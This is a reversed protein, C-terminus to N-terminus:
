FYIRKSFKGKSTLVLTGKSKSYSFTFAREQYAEGDCANVGYMGIIKVTNKSAKGVYSHWFIHKKSKYISRIVSVTRLKGNRCQSLVGGNSMIGDGEFLAFFFSKGNQLTILQVLVYPGYGSKFTGVRKGNVYVNVYRYGTKHCAAKLVLKDAKKDGNVDYKTYTKTKAKTSYLGTFLLQKVNAKGTINTGKAKSALAVAPTGNNTATGQENAFAAPAFALTLALVLAACAAALNRTAHAM